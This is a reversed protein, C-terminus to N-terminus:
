SRRKKNLEEQIRILRHWRLVIKVNREEKEKDDIPCLFDKSLLFLDPNEKRFIEIEKCLAGEEGNPFFSDNNEAIALAEGTVRPLPRLLFPILLLRILSISFEGNHEERFKEMEKNYIEFLFPNEKKLEEEIDKYFSDPYEGNELKRYHEDIEEQSVRKL